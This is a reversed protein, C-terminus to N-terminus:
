FKVPRPIPPTSADVSYPNGCVRERACFDALSNYEASGPNSNGYLMKGTTWFQVPVEQGTQPMLLKNCIVQQVDIFTGSGLAAFADLETQPFCNGATSSTIPTTTPTWWCALARKAALCWCFDADRAFRVGQYSANGENAITDIPVYYTQNEFDEVPLRLYLYAEDYNVKVASGDLSRVGSWDCDNGDIEIGSFVSFSTLGFNEESSQVNQWKPRASSDDFDMTNWSTKFWEDQWAFVIGGMCGAMHIDGLLRVLGEGQQTESNGGQNLGSLHNIHTVGRATPLGFESILVPMSHYDVLSRVYAYYSDADVSADGSPFNLFDPYYPYVHYSAFFGSTFYDTAIIHEVDIAVSDEAARPENLHTLPDTTVWNSFAVPRQMAYHETEHAIALESM